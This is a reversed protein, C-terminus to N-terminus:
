ESDTLRFGSAGAPSTRSSIRIILLSGSVGLMGTMTVAQIRPSRVAEGEIRASPWTFEDAPTCPRNMM